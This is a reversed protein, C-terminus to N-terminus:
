QAPLEGAATSLRAAAGASAPDAGLAPHVPDQGGVTGLAESLRAAAVGLGAPDVKV